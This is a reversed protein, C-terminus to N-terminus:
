AVYRKPQNRKRKPNRRPPDKPPRSEETENSASDTSDDPGMLDYQPINVSPATVRTAQSDIVSRKRLQDQHRRWVMGGELVKVKFSLPGCRNTIAAPLWPPGRSFNRVFVPDGEDFPRHSAHKDHMAKQTEQNNEVRHHLDPKLLDLPSRLKRGFLLEGPSIGTTSQPTTRYFFLFRALKTRLSGDKMKRLGNKFTQVAREALGNSSPHYPSTTIHKVGNRQLFDKFEASVFTPGNDSVVKEPLGLQAFVHRLCEITAKATISAMPYVEIWKSHADILLLFMHGMFPGLFDIHVRSWPRSPWQWPSLPALPPMPRQFQCEACSKVKEEIDQDMAPWWVFMRALQKMRTAGPHAEHLEQLVEFQGAKPIIVRNGWLICGDQVSLETQRSFYPKILQDNVSRPWGSQVFQRVRSLLPDTNTWTRVTTATVPSKDLQEMLLIMEPPQPVTAPQVSLPLRSMADANAHAKTPRFSITYEYM